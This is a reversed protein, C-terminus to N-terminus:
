TRVKSGDPIEGDIREHERAGIRSGNPLDDGIKEIKRVGQTSGDALEDRIREIKGHKLKQELLVSQVFEKM